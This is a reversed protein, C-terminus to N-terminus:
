QGKAQAVQNISEPAVRVLDGDKVFGAGTGVVRVGVPLGSTVEVIGQQRAATQIKTEKAVNDAGIVYVYTYGDRTLVAAEPVALGGSREMLIEGKAHSGAKLAANKPLTVYVLGNRTNADLTPAVMRVQGEATSGDDLTVRVKAGPKVRTLWHSPFEAQWELQGDKILRFMESGPQVVAGVTTTKRSIVGAAPAVVRTQAIKVELERRQANVLDLKAKASDVATKRTQHTEVSYVGSDKLKEAREYNLQAQALEAQAQKSQADQQALQARLQSDDAQALLQGKHVVSGVDVFVGLVRVGSADSGILLEDRPNVTGTAAAARDFTTQQPSIASVTISPTQKPKDASKADSGGAMFFATASLAIVLTGAIM